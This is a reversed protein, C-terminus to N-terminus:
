ACGSKIRSTRCDLDSHLIGGYRGCLYCVSQAEAGIAGVANYKEDNLLASNWQMYDTVKEETQDLM